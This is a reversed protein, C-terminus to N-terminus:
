SGVKSFYSEMTTDSKGKVQLGQLYKSPGSSDSSYAIQSLLLTLHVGSILVIDYTYLGETLFAGRHRDSMGYGRVERVLIDRVKIRAEFAKLM